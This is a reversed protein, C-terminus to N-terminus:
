SWPRGKGTNVTLTPSRNQGNNSDSEQRQKTTTGGDSTGGATIAHETVTARIPARDSAKKENSVAPM